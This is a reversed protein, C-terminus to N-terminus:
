AISLQLVNKRSSCIGSRHTGSSTQNTHYVELASPNPCEGELTVGFHQLWAHRVFCNSMWHWTQNECNRNMSLHLKDRGPEVVWLHDYIMALFYGLRKQACCCSRQEWWGQCWWETSGSQAGCDQTAEKGPCTAQPVVGFCESEEHQERTRSPSAVKADFHFCHSCTLSSQMYSDSCCPASLNSQYQSVLEQRAKGLIEYPSMDPNEKALRERAEKLHKQYVERM